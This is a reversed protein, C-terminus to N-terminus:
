TQKKQNTLFRDLDKINFIRYGNKEAKSPIIKKDSLKRLTAAPIGLKNAADTILLSQGYKIKDLDKIKFYRNKGDLREAKLIGKKDWIRLTDISVKLYEASHSISLYQASKV